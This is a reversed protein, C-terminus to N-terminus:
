KLSTQNRCGGCRVTRRRPRYELWWAFRAFIRLSRGVDLYSAMDVSRRRARDFYALVIMGHGWHVGLEADGDVHRRNDGVADWHVDGDIGQEVSREVDQDVCRGVDQGIRGDVDRGGSERARRM